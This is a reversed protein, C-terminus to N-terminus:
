AWTAAGEFWEPELESADDVLYAPIGVEDGIERLRNSNSSNKGGVVLMVDAVPWSMCPRGSPEPHRLLHRNDGAGVIDTFRAKLAAIIRPTTSRSPPRPSTPWRRTTSKCRAADVDTQVLYVPAAVQGMTGEVEPHGAHGILVIERGQAVYRKGEAHVKSVLPCTADLVPLGRDAAAECWRRAVGHASFVTM